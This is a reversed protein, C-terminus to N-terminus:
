IDIRSEVLGFVAGGVILGLGLVGGAIKSAEGSAILGVLGVGVSIVGAVFFGVGMLPLTANAVAIRKPHKEVYEQERKLEEASVGRGFADYPM